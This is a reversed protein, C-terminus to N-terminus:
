LISTAHEAETEHVVYIAEQEFTLQYPGTHHPISVAISDQIHLHTGVKDLVWGVHINSNVFYQVKDMHNINTRLWQPPVNAKRCIKPSGPQFIHGSVWPSENTLHTSTLHIVHGSRPGGVIKVVSDNRLTDVLADVQLNM